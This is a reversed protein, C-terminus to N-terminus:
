FLLFSLALLFRYRGSLLDSDAAARVRALRGELMTAEATRAPSVGLVTAARLASQLQRRVNRVHRGVVLARSLISRGAWAGLVNGGHQRYTVLPADLYRVRAGTLWALILLAWDHMLWYLEFATRVQVLWARRLCMTMGIAPNTLLVSADLPAGPRRYPSGRGYFTPVVEGNARLVRADSYALDFAGFRGAYQEVFSRVKDVAWVDDQDAILILEAASKSAVEDLAHLFSRAPGPATNMQYFRTLKRRREGGNAWTRICAATGDTSNWDFVHLEHVPASQREISDLQEVIFQAGNHTCVIVAIRCNAADHVPLASERAQAPVSEDATRDGGSWAARLGRLALRMYGAYDRRERALRWCAVLYRQLRPRSFGQSRMSLDHPVSIPLLLLQADRQAAALSWAVDSLDLGLQERFGDVERFARISGSLCCNIVGVGDAFALQTDSLEGQLVIPAIGHLRYPSIRMSRSFMQPCAFARRSLLTGRLEWIQRFYERPPRSDGDLIILIDESGATGIVLNYAAAVGGVNQQYCVEVSLEPQLQLRHVRTRARRLEDRNIVVHVIVGAPVGAAALLQLLGRVSRLRQRYLVVVIRLV